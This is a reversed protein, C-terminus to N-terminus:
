FFQCKKASKIPIQNSYETWQKIGNWTWNFFFCSFRQFMRLVVSWMYSSHHHHKTLATFWWYYELQPQAPCRAGAASWALTAYISLLTLGHGWFGGPLEVSSLSNRVTTRSKNAVGSPEWHEPSPAEAGRHVTHSINFFVLAGSQNVLQVGGPRVWRMHHMTHPVRCEAHRAAWRLHGALRQKPRKVQRWDLGQCEEARADTRSAVKSKAHSTTVTCHPNLPAYVADSWTWSWVCACVCVRAWM